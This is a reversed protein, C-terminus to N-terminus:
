VLYLISIKDYDCTYSELLYTLNRRETISYYMVLYYYLIIEFCLKLPM